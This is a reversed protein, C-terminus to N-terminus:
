FLTRQNLPHRYAAFASGPLGAFMDTQVASTTLREAEEVQQMATLIHLLASQQRADLCNQTLCTQLTPLDHDRLREVAQTLNERARKIARGTHSQKGM